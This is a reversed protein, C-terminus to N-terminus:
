ASATDSGLRPSSRTALWVSQCAAKRVGGTTINFRVPYPFFDSHLGELKKMLLDAATEKQFRSAQIEALDGHAVLCSLAICECIMRLQLFCFERTLPGHLGTRGSAVHGISLTREKIELMLDRYRGMLADNKSLREM